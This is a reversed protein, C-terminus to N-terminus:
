PTPLVGSRMSFDLFCKTLCAIVQRTEGSTMQTPSTAFHGAQRRMVSDQCPRELSRPRHAVTRLLIGNGISGDSLCHRALRCRDTDPGRELRLAIDQLNDTAVKWPHSAVTWVLRRFTQRLLQVRCVQRQGSIAIGVVRWEGRNRANPLVRQHFVHWRKGEPLGLAGICDRQSRDVLFEQGLSEGLARTVCGPSRVM